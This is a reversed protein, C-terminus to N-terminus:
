RDGEVDPVLSKAGSGSLAVLEIDQDASRYRVVGVPGAASAVWIEDSGKRYHTADFKGARTTVEEKGVASWGAPFPPESGTAPPRLMTIGRVSSDPYLAIERCAAGGDLPGFPVRLKRVPTPRGGDNMEDLLEVWYDGDARGVVSVTRFRSISVPMEVNPSIRYRAWQGVTWGKVGYPQPARELIATDFNRPGLRVQVQAAAASSCALIGAAIIMSRNRM